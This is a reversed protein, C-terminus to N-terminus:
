DVTPENPQRRSREVEFGDEWAASRVYAMLHITSTRVVHMWEPRNQRAYRCLARYSVVGQEDLWDEVESLIRDREEGEDLAVAGWSAGCLEVVDDDSYRHKDHDDLHVLYRAYAKVSKVLEPPATVGIKSFVDGATKAQVPQEFMLLVHYHPKKPTGDATVDSDHLPSVLAQVHQESLTQLWGSPASEPYVICAWGRARKARRADYERQKEKSNTAM